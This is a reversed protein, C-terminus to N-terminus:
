KLIMTGIGEHSFIELLLSHHVRGDIIHTRKVGGKVAEICCNIKPIMGGSIVKDEILQSINQTKLESVLSTEDMPNMLVGPVDTILIFKEAKLKSSIKAAALDANVNYPRGDEQGLAVTSIVPIYGGDLCHQIISDNVDVIEGVYGIDVGDQLEVKKAKLLNADIGCLGVAKGKNKDILSVIDKNVKGALVSQVIEITEEDTVRLGNVFESKKGIKSLYENIEPGGGHVVVVKIGVCNLLVIDRIVSNKLDENIMANGGYKIVVTKGSYKQIYPLAQSLINANHINIDNIGSFM